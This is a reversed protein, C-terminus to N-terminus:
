PGGLLAPAFRVTGGVNRQPTAPTTHDWLVLGEVDETVTLGAEQPRHVTGTCTASGPAAFAMLGLAAILAVIIRRHFVM